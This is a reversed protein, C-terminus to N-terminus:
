AAAVSRVEVQVKGQYVRHKVEILVQCGILDRLPGKAKGCAARVQGLRWNAGKKTSLKGTTEDIDLMYGETIQVQERDMEQLVSPETIAYKIDARAWEKSEDNTGSVTGLDAIYAAHVGIPVLVRETSLEEQEEDLFTDPDFLSM